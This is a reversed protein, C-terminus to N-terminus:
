EKNEFWVSFSSGSDMTKTSFELTEGVKLISTKPLYKKKEALYEGGATGNTQLKIYNEGVELVKFSFDVEVWSNKQFLSKKVATYETAKVIVEKKLKINYELNKERSSGGNWGSWDTQKILIKM